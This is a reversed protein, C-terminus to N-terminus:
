PTAETDIVPWILAFTALVLKPDGTKEMMEKLTPCKHAKGSTLFHTCIADLAVNAHPTDADLKAVKIAVEYNEAQDEHLKLTKIVTASKAGSGAPAKYDKVLNRLALRNANEAETIWKEKNDVTIVSAIVALKSWGINKVKEWPVDAEDLSVYIARLHRTKASRIDYIREVWAAFKEGPEATDQWYKSRCIMDLVGGLYFTNFEREDSLQVVLALAEEQDLHEIEAIAEEIEDLTETEKKMLAEM